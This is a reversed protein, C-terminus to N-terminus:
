KYINKITKADKQNLVSSIEELDTKRLAEFTGFHNLLKKIKAQSIGNLTLLQSQQDNKLKTKKHFTIAHRHSRFLM